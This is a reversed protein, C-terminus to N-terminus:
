LSATFFIKLYSKDLKLGDLTEFINSELLNELIWEQITNVKEESVVGFENEFDNYIALDKKNNKYKTKPNKLISYYAEVREKTLKDKFSEKKLFFSYVNNSHIVKKPDIPKNMSLLKSLYDLSAFFEYDADKKDDKKSDKTVELRKTIKKTDTDVLIYSGLSLSYRDTIFSIEDHTESKSLYNERDSKFIEICDKLM